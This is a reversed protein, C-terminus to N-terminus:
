HVRRARRWDDRSEELIRRIWSKDAGSQNERMSEVREIRCLYEPDLEVPGTPTPTECVRDLAELARRTASDV